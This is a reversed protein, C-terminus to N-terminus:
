IGRLAYITENYAIVGNNIHINVHDHQANSTISVLISKNNLAFNSFQTNSGEIDAIRGIAIYRLIESRIDRIDNKPFELTNEATTRGVFVSQNVVLSLSFLLISVLLGLLLIWQATDNLKAM